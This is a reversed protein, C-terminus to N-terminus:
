EETRFRGVIEALARAPIGGAALFFATSSSSAAALFFVSSGEWQATFNRHRDHYFQTWTSM